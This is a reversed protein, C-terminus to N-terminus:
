RRDYDRYRAGPLRQHMECHKCCVEELPTHGMHYEILFYLRDNM